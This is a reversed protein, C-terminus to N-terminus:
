LSLRKATTSRRATTKAKSKKATQKKVFTDYVAKEKATYKVNRKTAGKARYGVDTVVTFDSLRWHTQDTFGELQGVKTRAIDRYESSRLRASSSLIELTDEDVIKCLVGPYDVYIYSYYYKDSETTRINGNNHYVIARGAYIFYRGDKRQYIGGVEMEKWPIHTRGQDEPRMENVTLPEPRFTKKM